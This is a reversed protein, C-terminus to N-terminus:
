CGYSLVMCTLGRFVCVDKDPLINANHSMQDLSGVDCQLSAM